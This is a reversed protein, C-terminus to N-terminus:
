VHARGIEQAIRKLLPELATAKQHRWRWASIAAQHTHMAFALATSGCHYALTRLMEALEDYSAGGGGLEAPVGAAVLGSSKLLGYNDAVFLDENTAQEARKGFVPGLERATDLLSRAKAAEINLAANQSM